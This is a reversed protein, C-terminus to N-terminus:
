GGLLANTMTIDSAERLATRLEQKGEETAVGKCFLSGDIYLWKGNQETQQEVEQVADEVSLVKTDHGRESVVKIKVKNPAEM